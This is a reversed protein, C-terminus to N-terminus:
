GGLDYERTGEVVVTRGDVRSEVDEWDEFPRENRETSLHETSAVEASEFVAVFRATTREADLTTATGTVLPEPEPTETESGGTANGGSGDVSGGIARSYTNGDVYTGIGLHSVLEGLADNAEVYRGSGNRADVVAEVVARPDRLIPTPFGASQFGEVVMGNRVGVTWPSDSLALLEYGEYEGVREFPEPVTRYGEFAEVVASDDMGTELVSLGRNSAVELGADRPGLPLVPHVHGDEYETVFDDEDAEFNGEAEVGAAELRAGVDPWNRVSFPYFRRLTAAQEDGADTPDLLVRDPAPLWTAYEPLDDGGVFGFEAASCGALGALAAGGLTAGGRRLLRRRTTSPQRPSPRLM